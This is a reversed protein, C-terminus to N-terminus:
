LQVNMLHGGKAPTSAIRWKRTGGPRIHFHNKEHLYFENECSFQPEDYILM